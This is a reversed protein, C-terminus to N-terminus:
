SVVRYAVINHTEQSSDWIWGGAEEGECREGNQFMVDVVTDYPVPCESDVRPIWGVWENM